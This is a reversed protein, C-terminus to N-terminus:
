SSAITILPECGTKLKAVWDTRCRSTVTKQVLSLSPRTRCRNSVENSPAGTLVVKSPV